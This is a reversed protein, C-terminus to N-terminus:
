KKGKKKGSGTKPPIEAAKRHIKMSGKSDGIKSDREVVRGQKTAGGKKTSGGQKLQQKKSKEAM